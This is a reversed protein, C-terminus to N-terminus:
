RRDSLRCIVYEKPVPNAADTYPSYISDPHESQFNPRMPSSGPTYVGESAASDLDANSVSRAPGQVNEASKPPEEPKTTINILKPAASRRAPLSQHPLDAQPTEGV